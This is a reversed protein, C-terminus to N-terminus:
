FSKEICKPPFRRQTGRIVTSSFRATIASLRGFISFNIEVIASLVVFSLLLVPIRTSNYLFQFGLPTILVVIRIIPTFKKSNKKNLSLFSLELQPFNSNDM